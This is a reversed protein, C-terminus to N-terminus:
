IPDGKDSKERIVDPYDRRIMEIRKVLSHAFMELDNLDVKFMLPSKDKEGYELWVHFVTDTDDLVWNEPNSWIEIQFKDKFESLVEDPIRSDDSSVDELPLKIKM